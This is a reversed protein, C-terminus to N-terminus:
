EHGESPLACLHGVALSRQRGRRGKPQAEGTKGKRKSVELYAIKPDIGNLYDQRAAEAILLGVAMGDDAQARLPADPFILRAMNLPCLAVDKGNLHLRAQASRWRYLGVKRQWQGPLLRYSVLDLLKLMVEWKGDNVMLPQTNLIIDIPMGRYINVKERYVSIVRYRYADLNYFTQQPDEERWRWAQVYRGALNVVGAGGTKGPDIGLFLDREM